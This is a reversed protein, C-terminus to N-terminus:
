DIDQEAVLGAAVAAAAAVAEDPASATVEVEAVRLEVAM